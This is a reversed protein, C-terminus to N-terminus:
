RFLFYASISVLLVFVVGVLIQLPSFGVQQTSWGRKDSIMADWFKESVLYIPLALTVTLWWPAVSGILVLSFIFVFLNFLLGIKTLTSRIGITPRAPIDDTPDM